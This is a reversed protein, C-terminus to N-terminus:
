FGCDTQQFRSASSVESGEVRVVMGVVVVDNFVFLEDREFGEDRFEKFSRSGGEGGEM